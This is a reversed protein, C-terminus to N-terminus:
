EGICPQIATTNAPTAKWCLIDDYEAPCYQGPGLGNPPPSSCNRHLHYAPTSAEHLSAIHITPTVDVM